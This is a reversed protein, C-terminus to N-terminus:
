SIMSLYWASHKNQVYSVNIKHVLFNSHCNKSRENRGEKGMKEKGKKQENIEGLPKM